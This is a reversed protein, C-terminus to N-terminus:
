APFISLCRRWKRCAGEQLRRERERREAAAALIDRRYLVVIESLLLLLIFTSTLMDFIRGVYWACDFRQASFLSVLSVTCSSAFMTLMLWLDLVSRPKKGAVTFLAALQLLLLAAVAVQSAPTLRGNEILKPLWAHGAILFGTIGSAIAVASLVSLLIPKRPGGSATDSYSCLTGSAYAIVALPIATHWWVYLWPTGQPGGTLLGAQSVAGPFSLTHSIMLLTTVLYGTALILLEKTRAIAFQGYLLAAIILCNASQLSQQILIFGPFTGWVTRSFPLTALCTTLALLFVALAARRHGPTPMAASLLAATGQYQAQASM